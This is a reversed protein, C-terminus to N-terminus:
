KTGHPSLCCKCINELLQATTLVPKIKPTSGPGIYEETDKLLQKSQAEKPVEEKTGFLQPVGMCMYIEEPKIVKLGELSTGTFDEVEKGKQM